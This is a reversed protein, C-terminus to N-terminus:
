RPAGYLMSLSILLFVGYVLSALGVLFVIHVRKIKRKLKVLEADGENTKKHIERYFIILDSITSPYSYSYKYPFEANSKRLYRFYKNGLIFLYAFLLFEGYFIGDFIYWVITMM